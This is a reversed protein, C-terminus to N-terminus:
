LTPLVKENFLKLWEDAIMAAGGIMPHVGDVLVHMAGFEAAKKSLMEQLPLFFLGYENALKKVTEAYKYVECFREFRNQNEETTQTASGQLVFPECLIIKVNPLKELTDQLLMRYMREFRELDVGNQHGIEHWIDNIGILISVIDPQIDVFDTELRAVLDKTQNGSIGLNVFEFEIEPHNEQMLQAAYKPYGNGMHHYNRKDRGADTISDGQFVIKIKKM